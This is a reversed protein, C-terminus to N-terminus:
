GPAAGPGSKPDAIPAGQDNVPDKAPDNGSGNGPGAESDSGSRPFARSCQDILWPLESDRDGVLITVCAVARPSMEAVCGRLDDERTARLEKLRDARQGPHIEIAAYLDQAADLMVGCSAALDEPLTDPIRPAVMERTQVAMRDWDPVSDVTGANGNGAESQSGNSTTASAGEDKRSPTTSCALALTAHAIVLACAVVRTRTPAVNSAGALAISFEVAASKMRRGRCASAGGWSGTQETHKM